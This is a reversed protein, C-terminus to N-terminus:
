GALRYASELVGEIDARSLCATCTEVIDPHCFVRIKGVSKLFNKALDAWVISDEMLNREEVPNLAKPTRSESLFYLDILSGRREGPIDILFLVEGRESRRVIDDTRNRNLVSTLRKQDDLADIINILKAQVDNQFKIINDWNVNKRFEILKEWLNQNKRQSVVLLRKFIRRECIMKLLQNGRSSTVGYLWEILLFDSMSLQPIKPLGERKLKPFLELSVGGGENLVESYFKEQLEHYERSRRDKQTPLAEWVARHLMSKLVRSTHHWYVSGFMAYRAFAVSEAPTKGKEHIGLSVFTSGGEQKFVVTLCKLLREVDIVRGYPVNLNNSDRILYDVKDADIPGDILTYLLRSKFPTDLSAPNTSLFQAVEECELGWDEKILKRLETSGSWDKVIKLTIDKHSFLKEEAEELDHALPYQGLDHCLAGLLLLNVDRETVIHKFLPNLHDSWLADCYRVVNSFTGLVHELRSHTATPYIQVLLGLQSVSALRRFTPTALLNAMRKTFSTASPSSIQITYEYHHDLEPIVEHISYEGTIKRIDKAVEEISSYKIESYVGKPLGLALEDQRNHGDLLRCGMLELYLRFYFPVLSEDAVDYRKLVRLINKGLAYLDFTKKLKSRLIKGRARNSDSVYEESVIARLEPHAFERTFAIQTETDEEEGLVRASGLDSIKVRGDPSILLNELKIDGHIINRGHLFLLGDVCQRIIDIIKKYDPKNKEMFDWVDQAGEIYEMVYFPWRVSEVNIEGKYSISIINQHFSERLRGIESAIIKALIPERGLMPRACKLAHHIGLNTDTVKVVIATGGINIPSDMEYRDKLNEEVARLIGEVKTSEASWSEEGHKQSAYKDRLRQMFEEDVKMTAGWSTM